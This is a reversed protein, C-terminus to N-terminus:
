ATARLPRLRSGQDLALLGHALALHAPLMLLIWAVNAQVFTSFVKSFLAVVALGAIGTAIGRAFRTTAANAFASRWWTPLLVLCLPSFVLLNENRWASQHDTFAWLGLMVVGTLGAIVSFLTALMALSVRAMRNHRKTSLILLVAAFATGIGLFPWRLDAPLVPPEILRSNALVRQNSVLPLGTGAADTVQVDALHAMLQMPVFSDKWFSLRQDAYPGLGVDIVAMLLPDPTTLADALLRYTFGRSPSVLQRHLAGDLANDLADRLRTSCNSTFYDYRYHRNEPRLNTDLYTQLSRAQAPTLRLEQEVVSRGQSIYYAIEEDPDDTAIQYSMRGRLFNVFFDEDDFDFMGYNYSVANGSTADRIVIANHGFREWYVEGPGFTLVSVKLTEGPVTQASAACCLLLGLSVIVAALWRSAIGGTANTGLPREPIAHAVATARDLHIM